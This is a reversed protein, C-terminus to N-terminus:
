DAKRAIILLNKGFPIQKWARHAVKSLPVLVNDFLYTTRDTLEPMSGVKISAWYPAVGVADFFHLDTVVLGAQEVVNRLAAKQYRRYHGSKADLSGYLRPIAPVIIGVSGGPRLLAHARRLEGVHDEIHELVNVYLVSDFQRQHELEHTSLTATEVGLGQTRENLLDFLAPDPEIAMINSQPFTERLARTMTGIGAGVELVDGGIAPRLMSAMWRHFRVAKSLSHLEQSGAYSSGAEPAQGAFNRQRQSWQTQDARYQRAVSSTRKRLLRNYRLERVATMPKSKSSPGAVDPVVTVNFGHARSIATLATIAPVASTSHSHSSAAFLQASERSLAVGVSGVVTVAGRHHQHQALLDDFCNVDGCLLVTADPHTALATTLASALKAESQFSDGGGAVVVEAVADGAGFSPDQM